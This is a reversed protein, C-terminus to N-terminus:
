EAFECGFNQFEQFKVLSWEFILYDLNQCKQVGGV